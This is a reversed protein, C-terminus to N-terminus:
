RKVVRAKLKEMSFTYGATGLAPDYSNLQGNTMNTLTRVQTVEVVSGSKLNITLVFKQKSTIPENLQNIIKRMERQSTPDPFSNTVYDNARGESDFEVPTPNQIIPPGELSEVSEVASAGQLPRGNGDTVTFVLEVGVGTRSAGFIKKGTFAAPENVQRVTVMVTERRTRVTVSDTGPQQPQPQAKKQKRKQRLNALGQAVMQEYAELAKEMGETWLARKNSWDIGQDWARGPDSGYEANAFMGTPDTLNVPDNLTYTYANWTRPDIVVGSVPDVGTFRGQASAYYRAQAYDLGTEDDREYGTFHQRLGDSQTYGQETTRGGQGAYLEEGFPLYDHRSVGALTGTRDAIM